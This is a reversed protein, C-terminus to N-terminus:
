NKLVKELVSMGGSEANSHMFIFSQAEM